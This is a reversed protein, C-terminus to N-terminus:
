PPRGPQDHCGEEEDSRLLEITIHRFGRTRLMARVEGKLATADIADDAPRIQCTFVHDSGDLSWAHYDCLQGVGALGRIGATVERVDVSEPVHQLFIRLTGNLGRFVNWLIFLAIVIALVPDIWYWEFLAMLVAGILVAVWGLLDELLHMTLIKENQTAGRSLGLFAYGNVLVGLVALGIMGAAHPTGPNQLRPVSEWIILVSGAMLVMGCVLASLASLRKYGYTLFENAQDGAKRELLLALGLSFADGLDHIADAIIAMSGTLVGGIIEVLSFSLNLLFARRIRAVSDGGGGHHHHHHHHHGHGHGM